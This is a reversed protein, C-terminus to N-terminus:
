ALSRHVEGGSPLAARAEEGSCELIVAIADAVRGWADPARGDEIEPARDQKQRTLPLARKGFRHILYGALWMDDAMSM